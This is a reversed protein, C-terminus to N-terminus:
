MVVHPVTVLITVTLAAAVAPVMVPVAERQVPKVVENDLVADPPVQLLLLGVMAEIPEDLPITVPTVPPVAVVM